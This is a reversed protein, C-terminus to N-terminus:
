KRNKTKTKVDLHFSFTISKTLAYLTYYTLLLYQMCKGALVERDAAAQQMRVSIKEALLNLLDWAALIANTVTQPRFIYSHWQITDFESFHFGM